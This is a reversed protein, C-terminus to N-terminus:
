YSGCMPYSEDLYQKVLPWLGGFNAVQQVGLSSYNPWTCNGTSCSPAIKPMSGNYAAFIGSYVSAKLLSSM